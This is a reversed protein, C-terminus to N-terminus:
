TPRAVALRSQREFQALLAINQRIHKSAILAARYLKHRQLAPSQALKGIVGCVSQHRLMTQQLDQRINGKGAVIHRHQIRRM